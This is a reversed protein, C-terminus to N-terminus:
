EENELEREIEEMQVMDMAESETPTLNLEDALGWEKLADKVPLQLCCSVFSAKQEQFRLQIAVLSEAVAQDMSRVDKLNLILNRVPNELFPYLKNELIGTMNASLTSEGITIVHLKESTDIKVQM